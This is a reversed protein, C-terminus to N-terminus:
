QVHEDILFGGMDYARVAFRVRAPDAMPDLPQPWWAAFWGGELTASVVVGTVTEVRVSAIGPGARGFVSWGQAKLNGGQVTQPEIASLQGPELVRADAAGGRWGGGAGMVEGTPGIELAHCSGPELGTMRVTVVGAGRADM